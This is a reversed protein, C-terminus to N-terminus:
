LWRRAWVLSVGVEYTATPSYYTKRSSFASRLTFDESLRRGVAVESVRLTPTTGGTARPPANAGEHRGAIFWRPTLSQVGQLFWETAVAHGSATELSDRTMEGTLRTYGFSLEGELAIMNLGRGNSSPGALESATAYEGRAYALGVRLGTRPTIGVGVVATPRPRPNPKEANLVFKRNPPSTVVAARADWRPTSATFQGGLPYSSAVPYSSPVGADFSPMPVFYSLHPTITPNTDPRADMMGLGIPSLIYGLDVRTSVRGSRQHQVAAQYIEKALDYPDGSSKRFWPRVYAVWGKGLRMTATIDVVIDPREEAYEGFFQSVGIASDISNPAVSQAAASTGALVCM